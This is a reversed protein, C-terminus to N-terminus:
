SAGISLAWASSTQIAFSETVFAVIADHLKRL